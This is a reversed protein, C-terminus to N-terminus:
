PFLSLFLMKVYDQLINVTNHVYHVKLLSGYLDNDFICRVFVKEGFNSVTFCKTQAEM